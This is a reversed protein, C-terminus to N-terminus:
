RPYDGDSPYEEFFHLSMKRVQEPMRDRVSRLLLSDKLGLGYGPEVWRAHYPTLVGVRDEDATINAGARHWMAGLFVVASGAGGEAAVMHGVPDGDELEARIGRVRDNMYRMEGNEGPWMNPVELRHSMPLILTAGNERTFDTLMWNCQVIFSINEPPPLGQEAFWGLPVDAHIGSAPTGPRTWKVDSGILQIGDGLRYEALGLVVPHTILPLFFDQDEPKLHNFLSTLDQHRSDPTERRKELEILREAMELATDRLILDPLVVYGYEDLELKAKGLDINLGTNVTM